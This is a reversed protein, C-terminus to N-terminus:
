SWDENLWNRLLQAVAEPKEDVFKEIMRRVESVENFEIDEITQNEKTTALLQEVSLEPELETVEVPKVGRFVVFLLLAVILVALIIQLYNTWSKETVTEPIFVPQEFATITIKSTAIGTANSVLAFLDDGAQLTIRENNAAAYEEFTTNDLLGQAKLDEEHYTKGRTLVISITSNEANVVGVEREINTIRSSPLYSNEEIEVSGTTSSTDVGYTTEDNSDTGPEGGSAGANESSYTYSKSFLGQEQGDAALYETFLEEAKDMNIDLNPMIVADDFGYKILGMYINNILTNRLREKYDASSNATGSYLDDGGGYLLNGYQDAVKISDAKENGIVAAVVEAITQATTTKFDDNITLTVSASTDKAQSLISDEDESPLYTVEADEIGEMKKISNKLQQQFFLNVKLTRDYNTTSLSNNFLEEIAIGTSPMDNSAMLFVADTKQESDVYITVNDKDVKHTIGENELLKVIDSADKTTEAITLKEYETRQMLTILLAFALIVVCVVSIIITKQKTTYKNWIDLLQKLLQKARDAM